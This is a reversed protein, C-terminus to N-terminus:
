RASNPTSASPPEQKMDPRQMIALQVQRDDTGNNTLWYSLLFLLCCIAHALHSLGTEPDRDDGRLFAITHRMTAGLLRTYKMGRQWNWPQYKDAGYMLVRTVESLADWPLLDFRLKDSDDKHGQGDNPAGFALKLEAEHRKQQMREIDVQVRDRSGPADSPRPTNTVYPANSLHRVNVWGMSKGRWEMLTGDLWQMEGIFPDAM